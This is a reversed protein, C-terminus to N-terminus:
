FIKASAPSLTAPEQAINFLYVCAGLTQPRPWDFHKFWCHTTGIMALLGLSRANDMDARPRQRKGTRAWRDVWGGWVNQPRPRPSPDLRM